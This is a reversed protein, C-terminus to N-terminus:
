GRLDRPLLTLVAIAVAAFAAGFTFTVQLANSFADIVQPKVTAPLAHVQAPDLRAGAASIREGVPGISALESSLRGAFIAGFVAVGVSAGIARAFTATSTAVGIHERPAHNQAVLIVVQMVLGVGIGIVVMYLATLVDSYGEHVRSLLLMGGSM